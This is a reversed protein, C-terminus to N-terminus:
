AGVQIRTVGSAFLAAILATFAEAPASGFDVAFAVTKGDPAAQPPTVSHAASRLGDGDVGHAEARDGWENLWAGLAGSVDVAPACHFECDDWRLFLVSVEEGDPYTTTCMGGVGSAAADLAGVMTKGDQEWILDVRFSRFQEPVHEAGPPTVWEEMRLGFLKGRQERIAQRLATLYGERATTIVEWLTL